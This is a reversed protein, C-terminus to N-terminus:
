NDKRVVYEKFQTCVPIVAEIPSGDTAKKIETKRGISINGREPCFWGVQKDDRTVMRAEFDRTEAVKNEAMRVPYTIMCLPARGPVWMEDEVEAAIDEMTKPIKGKPLVRAM